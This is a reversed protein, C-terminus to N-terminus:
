THVIYMERMGARYRITTHVAGWRALQLQLPMEALIAWSVVPENRVDAVLLV